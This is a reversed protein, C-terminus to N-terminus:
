QCQGDSEIVSACLYVGPLAAPPTFSASHGFTGPQLQVGPCCDPESQVASYKEWSERFIDHGHTGTSAWEWVSNSFFLNFILLLIFIYGILSWFTISQSPVGRQCSHQGGRGWQLQRVLALSSECKRFGWSAHLQCHVRGDGKWVPGFCCIRESVHPIFMPSCVICSFFWTWPRLSLLFVSTGEGSCHSGTGHGRWWHSHANYRRQMEEGRCSEGGINRYVFFVKHTPKDFIKLADDKAHIPWLDRVTLRDLSCGYNQRQLVGNRRVESGALVWTVKSRLQTLSPSLGSLPCSPLDPPQLTTLGVHLSGSWRDDVKNIKM